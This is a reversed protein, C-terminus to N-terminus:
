QRLDLRGKRRLGGVGGLVILGMAFLGLTAPEPVTALARPEGYAFIVGLFSFTESGQLAPVFFTGLLVNGLGRHGGTM